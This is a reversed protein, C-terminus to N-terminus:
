GHEYEFGPVHHCMWLVGDIRRLCEDGLCCANQDYTACELTGVSGDMVYDIGDEHGPISSQEYPIQAASDLSRSM